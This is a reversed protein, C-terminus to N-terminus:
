GELTNAFQMAQEMQGRVIMEVSEVAGDLAREILPQQAKPVTGLVYNVLEEGAEPKGVGIRVRPFDGAGLHAIVSRMGNHTGASGSKRIRLHGAPLDIDDYIVIIHDHPVAFYRAMAGICQGSENMYTQPAALIVREGGVVGKGYVGQFGQKELPIGWRRSLGALAMFGMNHRTRAYKEGPNGLGAIIYM